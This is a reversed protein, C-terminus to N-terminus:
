RAVEQGSAFPNVREGLSLQAPVNLRSVGATMPEANEAGIVGFRTVGALPM